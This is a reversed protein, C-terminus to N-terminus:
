KGLLELELKVWADLDPELHFYTTDFERGNVLIFPTGNLGAREADAHDREIIKTTAEAAMDAKFRNLDLKLEKAYKLLDADQLDSQHDFLVREMEWYKGQNKAAIAARAAPEARLHQRLPYFKHVLRVQASRKEIVKDLIPMAHRCHPCEFDSWVMITVPADPAGRAPSDAVDVQKVNNGFRVGYLDRVQDATAGEKIKTAILRAAPACAACPRSEELCQQISVAESACPAYLQSLTAWLMRQERKDLDMSEFGRLPRPEPARDAAVTTAPPPAPLAVTATKPPDAAASCAAAALALIPLILISATRVAPVKLTV